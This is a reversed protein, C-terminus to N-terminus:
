VFVACAGVMQAGGSFGRFVVKSVDLAGYTGAGMQKFM